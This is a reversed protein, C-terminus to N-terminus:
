GLNGTPINFVTKSGDNRQCVGETCTGTAGCDGNGCPRGVSPFFPIKPYLQTPYMLPTQNLNSQPGQPYQYNIGPVYAYPNTGMPYYPNYNQYWPLTPPQDMTGLPGFPGLPAGYGYGQSNKVSVNGFKEYNEKAIYVLGIAVAIVILNVVGSYKSM